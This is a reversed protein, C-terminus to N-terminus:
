EHNAEARREAILEDALSRAAPLVTFSQQLRRLCTLRQSRTSRQRMPSPAASDALFTVLVRSRRVYKPKETLMVRGNEYRAEVTELM